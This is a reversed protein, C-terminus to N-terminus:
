CGVGASLQSRSEVGGYAVLSVATCLGAKTLSEQLSKGALQVKLSICASPAAASKMALPRGFSARSTMMLRKWPRLM